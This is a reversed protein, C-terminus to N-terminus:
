WTEGVEKLEFKFYYDPIHKIPVTGFLANQETTLLVDSSIYIGKVQSYDAWHLQLHDAEEDTLIMLYEREDLKIGQELEIMEAIHHQLVDFVDDNDKAVFDTKFYKINSPIGESYISQDQRRGTIVTKIRQYTIEECIRNENNTCLIFHRNGHDENNLELVAQGTTGSGAFFDLIISHRTSAVRVIHKIYDVAKPQPFDNKNSDLFIKGFASQGKETYFLPNKWISFLKQKAVEGNKTMAYSKRYVKWKGASKKAVLLHIDASALEKGWTWCGEYGDKWYPLIAETFRETKELSVSSLKNENPDIYFPYWLNPRNERNFERHTNRLELYRFPGNEDREKYDKALKEDNKDVHFSGKPLSIKSKAYALLYEHCTAFYKEQNRGKPNCLLTVQSLFNEEGFIEDCLLRLNSIENDDISIFISGRDSLLERALMLRIHLFSLWKSHRFGDEKDVFSDDYVFDKNGTNYPPDIYILDIKGKHTKELLYLSHLNDGELIFNYKEGPTSSIEKEKVETFVPVNDRLAVDVAEEHQEWVLGYKKANLETEIEGIAALVRDDNMHEAKITELFALIRERKQQSLNAM